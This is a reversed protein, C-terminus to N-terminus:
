SAAARSRRTSAGVRHYERARDAQDIGREVHRPGILRGRGRGPAGTPKGQCTPSSASVRSHVQRHPRRAPDRRSSCRWRRASVPATARGAVGMAVFGACRAARPPATLPFRAGPRRPDQLPEPFGSRDNSIDFLYPEGVQIVRSTSRSRSPKLAPAPDVPGRARSQRPTGPACGHEELANWLPRRSSHCRQLEPRPVWLPDGRLM